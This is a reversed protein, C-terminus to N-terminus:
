FVNPVDKTYNEFRFFPKRFFLTVDGIPGNRQKAIIVKILEGGAASQPDEPAQRAEPRHLLLVCDADMEIGGSERLDSLKPEEHEEAKRNLQALAVVPIQLERALQKLRNSICAVQEQRNVRRNDPEILQLYDVIMLRIGYRHKHRRAHAGIQLMTQGSSDEIVLLAAKKIRDGANLIRGCEQEHLTGLRYRQGDVLGECCLMRDICEDGTQELSVFLVPLGEKLIVHGAINLGLSTKGISPRNAIVTLQGNALGAIKYDL